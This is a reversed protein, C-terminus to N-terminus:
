LPLTWTKSYRRINEPFQLKGVAKAVCTGVPTGLQPAKVSAKTVTGDAEIEFKVEVSSFLAKNSKGCARSAQHAKAKVSKIDTGSREPPPSTSPPEPPPTALPTPLSGSSKKAKAKAKAKGKAKELVITQDARDVKAERITRGNATRRVIWRQGLATAVELTKGPSVSAHLQERGDEDALFIKVGVSLQNDFRVVADQDPGPDRHSPSETLPVVKPEITASGETRRSSGDEVKAHLARTSADRFKSTPLTTETNAPPQAELSAWGVAGLLAASIASLAFMGVRRRPTAAGVAQSRRWLASPRSASSTIVVGEDNIGVLADRLEKAEQFRDAPNKALARMIIAEVARPISPNIKRPRTLPENVHALLVQIPGNGDFPTAGTLMEYALVGVAYIDSQVSAPKNLALEPAMYTATGLMEATGTLKQTESDGHAFRAIGFDLVKVRDDHADDHADDSGLLFVNAPKIDRHIIKSNHAAQLGGLVQLLIKRARPWGLPGHTELLSDLDNGHLLEMVLYTTGNDLEGFDLIDVVNPHEVSSAAQAERLFRKSNKTRKAREPHMLKLAVRRRLKIQEAEYVVGMGGSGLARIIRYRGDLEDGTEFDGPHTPRRGGSSAEIVSETAQNSSM